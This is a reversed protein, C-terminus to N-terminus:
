AILPKMSNTLSLTYSNTGGSHGLVTALVVAPRPHDGHCAFPFWPEEDEGRLGVGFLRPCAWEPIAAEYRECAAIVEERTVWRDPRRSM